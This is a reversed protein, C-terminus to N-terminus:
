PLAAPNAVFDAPCSDTDQEIPTRDLSAYPPPVLAACSVNGPLSGTGWAVGDVIQDSPGLLLVEDGSNALSFSIADTWTLYPALQTVGPIGNFFVFHPDYGYRNYFGQATAAVNIKQGPAITAAPPFSWMGDVAFGGGGPTEEDGIKYSDLTVTIPTPNYIQIWESGTVAGTSGLYFVKGILLHNAPPIARKFVIPLYLRPQFAWDYEFVARLTDYIASSEVHLAVERNVKSSSETGNLSGVHAIKRGGVDFLILKSHIGGLTPNGRRAELNSALTPSLARLSELYTLTAANSTASTTDDFFSDLLLRVRAGRSAADILARLRPNPDDNPNGAAGGWHPPEVLQEADITDGPGAQAILGLLADTARLSSEPSSLLEFALPATLGLPAPYRISYGSGGGTYAPTFGLPPAGYKPDGATWPFIDRHHAPDFDASWIQLARSIVGSADTLLVVGRQGFTGDAPDDDPMSRPSLNESGIAVIADDVVILKAHLYDYRDRIDLATANIMFWCDGGASEVQQCVWLEQDDIGGVPGGELLITVGVGHAQMTRTLVGALGVHEFSHVEIKISQRASGLLDSIVRYANDPAIAVTLRATATIKAAQWFSELDWGPYMTKRGSVPDAGDNAWDFSTDTDPLLAGSSEHLKRYLIQGNAAISANSYRQVNSGIWGSIWGTDTIQGAGWAVADIWNSAGERIALEDDAALLPASGALNPVLPDSDADYEYDPQFGFQQTFTVARKAIWISQGPDLAGALDLTGEGDTAVWNTLTITRTSVNALRFGEDGNAYADFHVASILVSGPAAPPPLPPVTTTFVTCNNPNPTAQISWTGTIDRREISQSAPADGVDPPNVAGTEDILGGTNAPGYIVADIPLTQTTISIAEVDFLAVGDATTADSNQFDPNFDVAHDFLPLYNTINSTPGGIVWCAGGPLMGSLQARSYTYDSGGNGLSYSGLDITDSTPNHLEVWELGNDGGAPDYFVEGLILHGGVAAPQAGKSQAASRERSANSEVGNREPHSMVSNVRLVASPNREPRAPAAEALRLMRVAVLVAALGALIAISVRAVKM